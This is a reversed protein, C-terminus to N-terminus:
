VLPHKLHTQKLFARLVTAEDQKLAKLTEVYYGVHAEFDRGELIFEKQVKMKLIEAKHMVKTRFDHLTGEDIKQITRSYYCLKDLLEKKHQYLLHYARFDLPKYRNGAYTEIMADYVDIGFAFAVECSEEMWPCVSADFRIAYLYDRISIVFEDANYSLSKNDVLSLEECATPEHKPSHLRKASAYAAEVEGFPFVLETYKLDAGFGLAYYVEKQTDYGYILSMHPFHVQQYSQKNSLYYEDLCLMLYKGWGLAECIYEHINAGISEYPVNELKLIDKYYYAPFSSGAYALKIRDEKNPYTYIGIFKSHYWKEYGELSFIISLKYAVDVYTNVKKQAAVPLMVNM